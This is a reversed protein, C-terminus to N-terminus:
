SDFQSNRGVRDLRFLRTKQGNAARLTYPKEWVLDDYVPELLVRHYSIDYIGWKEKKTFRLYRRHEPAKPNEIADMMEPLREIDERSPILKRYMLSILLLAIGLFLVYLSAGVAGTAAFIFIASGLFSIVVYIYFGMITRRKKRERTMTDVFSEPSVLKSAQKYDTDM